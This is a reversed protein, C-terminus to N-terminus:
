EHLSHGLIACADQGLDLRDGQGVWGASTVFAGRTEDHITVIHGTATFQLLLADDAAQRMIEDDHGKPSSLFECGSSVTVEWAIAADRGGIWSLDVHLDRRM